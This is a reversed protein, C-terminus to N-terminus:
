FENLELAKRLQGVVMERLEPPKVVCVRGSWGLVWWLIEDLGDILFTLTATGDKHRRVKQTHHWTTETVLVAAERTYRIAANRAVANKIVGAGAKAASAGSGAAISNKSFCTRGM